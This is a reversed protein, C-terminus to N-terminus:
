STNYHHIEYNSYAPVPASNYSFIYKCLQMNNIYLLKPIALQRLLMDLHADCVNSNM